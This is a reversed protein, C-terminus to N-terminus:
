KPSGRDLITVRFRSRPLATHIVHVGLHPCDHLQQPKPLDEISHEHLHVLGGDVHQAPNLRIDGIPLNMTRKM